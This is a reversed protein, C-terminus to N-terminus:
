IACDPFASIFIILSPLLKNLSCLRCPISSYFQLCYCIYWPLLNYHKETSNAASDLEERQSHGILAFSTQQYAAPAWDTNNCTQVQEKRVTTVKKEPPSSLRPNTYGLKCILICYECASSEKCTFINLLVTRMRQFGDNWSAVNPVVTHEINGQKRGRRGVRSQKRGLWLVHSLGKSWSGIRSFFV